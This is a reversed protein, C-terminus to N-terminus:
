DEWINLQVDKVKPAYKDIFDQFVKSMAGDKITFEIPACRKCPVVRNVLCVTKTDKCTPCILSYSFAVPQTGESKPHIEVHYTPALTGWDIDMVSKFIVPKKYITDTKICGEPVFISYLRDHFKVVALTGIQGYNAIEKYYAIGPSFSYDGWPSLACEVGWLVQAEFEKPFEKHFEGNGLDFLGDYRLHIHTIL